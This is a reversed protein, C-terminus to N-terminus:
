PFVVVSDSASLPTGGVTSCKLTGSTDGLVFGCFQTKFGYMADMYGDLNFDRITPARVPSAETGTRGFKVTANNITSIDLLSSGFAIVYITYPRSLYIPNPFRNPYIDIALVADAMITLDYLIPSTASGGPRTFTCKIQIYRGTVGTGGFSVNNSVPDYTEGTLGPITDSARVEVGISTGAPETSTWSAKGWPTGTAGSDYVVTWTGTPSTTGVAVTGTMDSYNYPYAAAQGAFNLGVTLDVTGNAVAPDIRMVSHGDYNTVWVKGNSDVAVGTPHAGVGIAKVFAGANTLHYVANSYSCAIWIHNDPTVCVGRGGVGIGFTGLNAGASSFKTVTNSTWNSNWINGLNDIGTGYSQSSFFTQGTGAVPNYRLLSSQSIAASWLIGAGDVLGGYGGGSVFGGAGNPIAAMNFTTPNAAPYQVNACSGDAKNLKYARLQSFPYGMCWLDDNGDVSMHRTQYAGPTRQYILIAEDIAEDVTADGLPTPFAGTVGGTWDTGAPWGFVQTPGGSTRILGDGDRDECTNYSFPGEVYEGAPNPTVTWGGMGNSVKDGRTGGVLLGIKTVAGCAGAAGVSGSQDRHCVWVNGESDVTTRSPNHAQGDPSVRYQGVIAGTDTNIRMVTGRNSCAVNIFPFTALAGANMQLQNNNPADHNVNVLVGEDFDADLTYTRTQGLAPLSLALGALIAARQANRITGVCKM